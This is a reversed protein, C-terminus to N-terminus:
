KAKKEYKVKIGHIIDVKLDIDEDDNSYTVTLNEDDEWKVDIDKSHHASYVNSGQLLLKKIEKKDAKSDLISVRPSFDTTAGGSYVFAFATYYGNPSSAEKLIEINSESSCGIFFVLFSLLIICVFSKKFARFM